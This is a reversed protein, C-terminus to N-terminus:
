TVCIYLYQLAGAAAKGQACGGAHWTPRTLLAQATLSAWCAPPASDDCPAPPVNEVLLAAEATSMRKDWQHEKESGRNGRLTGVVHIGEIKWEETTAEMYVGDKGYCGKPIQFIFTEGSELM